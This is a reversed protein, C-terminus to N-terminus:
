LACKSPFWPMKFEHNVSLRESGNKMQLSKDFFQKHYITRLNVPLIQMQICNSVSTGQGTPFPTGPDLIYLKIYYNIHVLNKYETSNDINLAHVGGGKFFNQNCWQDLADKLLFRAAHTIDYSMITISATGYLSSWVRSINEFEM